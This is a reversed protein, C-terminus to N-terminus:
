LLALRGHQMGETLPSLKLSISCHAYRTLALALWWVKWDSVALLLGNANGSGSKAGDAGNDNVGVDEELRIQALRREQPTLWKTTTPFDPLIFIAAM